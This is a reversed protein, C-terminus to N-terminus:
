IAIFRHANSQKSRGSCKLGGIGPKLLAALIPAKEGYKLNVVKQPKSIYVWFHIVRRAKLIKKNKGQIIQNKHAENSAVSKELFHHM